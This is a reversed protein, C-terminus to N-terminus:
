SSLYTCAIKIRTPGQNTYPTCWERSNHLRNESSLCTVADHQIHQCVSGVKETTQEHHTRRHQYVKKGTRPKDQGSNDPTHVLGLTKCSQRNMPHILTPSFRIQPIFSSVVTLYRFCRLTDPAFSRLPASRPAIQQISSLGLPRATQLVHWNCTPVHVHPSLLIISLSV